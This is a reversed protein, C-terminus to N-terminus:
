VSYKALLCNKKKHDHPRATCYNRGYDVLLYNFFPWYRKPVIEMLDREIKVPDTHSTLGLQKSLRKVHTDVPIGVYVKHVLGLVINASKRGMGPLSTMEDMTKPLKGHFEEHLKKAAALINRTKNNHFTIRRIDQNFEIPDAAAYDHLTKYKKFLAPTVTNVLKDTCQASLQVAVVLQWPTKYNLAIKPQPDIKQLVKVIKLVKTKRSVIDSAM